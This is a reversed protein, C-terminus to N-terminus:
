KKIGTKHLSSAASFQVSVDVGGIYDHRSIM